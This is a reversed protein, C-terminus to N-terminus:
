AKLFDWLEGGQENALTILKQGDVGVALCSIKTKKSKMNENCLTMLQYGGKPHKRVCFCEHLTHQKSEAHLEGDEDQGLYRGERKFGFWGDKEVCLWQCSQNTGVNDFFTLRIDGEDDVGIALGSGRHRIVFKEGPWPVAESVSAVSAQNGRRNDTPSSPHLLTKDSSSFVSTSIDDEEEERKPEMAGM